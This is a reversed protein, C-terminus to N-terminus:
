YIWPLLKKTRLSYDAYNKGFHELLWQEELQIRQTLVYAIPVILMLLALGDGMAIGVGFFSFLLGTYAPHRILRYPGSDILIHSDKTRVTTSFFTGLSLVAYSRIALGIVFLIAAIVQRGIPDVPFPMLHSRKVWLAAFLAFLVILWILRESRFEFKSTNIFAVRTKLAIAIEITGWSLGLILWFLQLSTM